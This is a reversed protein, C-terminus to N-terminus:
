EPDSPPAIHAAMAKMAELWEITIQYAYDLVDIRNNYTFNSQSRIEPNDPLIASVLWVGHARKDLFIEGGFGRTLSANHQICDRYDTLKRGYHDWLKSLRAQLDQPMKKCSTLTAHFNRPCTGSGYAQWMVFRSIDLTRRAATLLADIEYWVDNVGELSSHDSDGHGTMRTLRVYRKRIRAYSIALNSCHYGVAELLYIVEKWKLIQRGNGPRLFQGMLSTTDIGFISSPMVLLPPSENERHYDYEILIPTHGCSTALAMPDSCKEESSLKWEPGDRVLEIGRRFIQRIQEVM